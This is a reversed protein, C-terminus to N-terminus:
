SGSGDVSTRQTEAQLQSRELRIVKQEYEELSPCIVKARKAYAQHVAKSTHGLAAQAFREPYGHEFAREAWAYRYSHLSVGEIKLIKCRRRFEASRDNASLKSLHPFLPGEHSLQNLLAELKPGITIRAPEATPDLKNRHYWLVRNEWDINDATLKAADSQAAGTAKLLEYYLQREPDCESSVINQHEDDSIGRKKRWQIKPWLKPALLPWNLWGLGLALNHLRRLYHNTSNTGARLSALLDASTTEVIPKNRINDLAPDRMAREYRLQTSARGHSRIEAMTASWTRTPLDPDSASLYVRGLDRNLLPARACQNKAHYLEDADSRNRTRLSEQKGTLNDHVYYVGGRRFM